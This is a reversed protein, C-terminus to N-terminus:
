KNCKTTKAEFRYCKTDFEYITNRINSKIPARIVICTRDKCVKRFLSALGLGWIISILVMGDNSNFIKGLTSM